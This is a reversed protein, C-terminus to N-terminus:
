PSIPIAALPTSVKAEASVTVTGSSLRSASRPPRTSSPTAWPSIPTPVKLQPMPATPASCVARTIEQFPIAEYPAMAMPAGSPTISTSWTLKAVRPRAKLPRASNANSTIRLM